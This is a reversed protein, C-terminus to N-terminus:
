SGSQALVRNINADIVTRMTELSAEKEQDMALSLFPTGPREATGFELLWWYWPDDDAKKQKRTGHRVGIDYSFVLGQPKQRAYAVNGIMAGTDILGYTQINAQTSKVVNRAAASTAKFAIHDQTQRSLASLKAALEKMGTIEITVVEPM